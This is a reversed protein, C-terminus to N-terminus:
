LEITEWDGDLLDFFLMRQRTPTSQGLLLPVAKAVMLNAAVAATFPLNGARQKSAVEM